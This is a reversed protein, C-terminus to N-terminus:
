QAGDPPRPGPVAGPTSVAAPGADAGGAPDTLVAAGDPAALRATVTSALARRRWRGVRVELALEGLLFWGVVLVLWFSVLRYVLVADVTTSQAGGFAVLAITISGEM